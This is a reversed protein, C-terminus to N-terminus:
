LTVFTDPLMRLQPALAPRMAACRGCGPGKGHLGTRFWLVFGSCAVCIKLYGKLCREDAHPGRAARTGHEHGRTRKHRSTRASKRM